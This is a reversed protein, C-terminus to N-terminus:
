ATPAHRSRPESPESRLAQRLTHLEAVVLDALLDPDPVLAADTAFGITVAGDYSFITATMPQDGSCPAFGVVQIVPAGAFTLPGRPGPVNTLVGVAKNAFFNTVAFAVPGPAVSVLRQLGFTIAAEDSHKIRDMRRRVVRLTEAPGASGLPMALFVLAFANGLEAPLHEDFPQLNVPVMWFVEDAERPARGHLALYQRLGAAVAALVVDNVTAGLAAGAAKVDALPVPRSWAVAKARGPRGTWVAPTSSAMVLKAVTALDHALRSDEVGLHELADLVRDPRRLARAGAEIRGVPVLGAVGAFARRPLSAVAALVGPGQPAAGARAVAEPADLTGGIGAIPTASAAPGLAAAPAAAGAASDPVARPHGVQPVLAEDHDGGSSGTPHGASPTRPLRTAPAASTLSLMLQTLRIGDAIAHHFRTVVAAGATGDLRLPHVLFAQWLPHRRDLPEARHEAVFRQLAAVDCPDPLRALGVHRDLDFAPDDQWGWGTGRRVPRRGLVPFRDAARRFVDRVAALDPVGALVLVGDVVMLNNPRDMTLWLADQVSMPTVGPM